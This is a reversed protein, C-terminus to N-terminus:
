DLSDSILLSTKTANTRRLLLFRERFEEPSSVNDLLSNLKIDIQLKKATYNTNFITNYIKTDIQLTEPYSRWYDATYLEQFKKLQEYGSIDTFFKVRLEQDFFHNLESKILATDRAFVLLSSDRLFDGPLNRMGLEAPPVWYGKSYMERISAQIRVFEKGFIGQHHKLFLWLRDYFESYTMLGANNMYRSLVQTYGVSHFMFIMWSFLYSDIMDDTSMTNTSVVIRQTEQVPDMGSDKYHSAWFAQDICKIDYKEIQQNLEANELIQAYYIMISNHQGMDLLDYIGKKWSQKTEEPLGLILESYTAIDEKQAHDFIMKSDNIQMGDRKIAKLTDTNMSQASVTIGKAGLVKNIELSRVNSNKQWTASVVEPFGTRERYEAIIKAIQLDREYFIGFNADAIFMYTIKLEALWKIEDTVRQLDFKKIKSFTASGWDCFTCAYPCGRNTELVAQWKVQPNDQIIQDFVGSLYASPLTSLDQIRDQKYIRKIPTHQAVATLIEPFILEGEGNVVVDVYPHRSLFLTEFPRDTVQPGGFLIVCSPWKKKIQEALKKNYAWNWIYCSFVAMHPDKMRAIVQEVPDRRFIIEAVQWNKRVSENQLASAWLVGVSYPLFYEDTHGPKVPFNPQVLYLNLM